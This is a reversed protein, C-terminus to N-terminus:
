GMWASSLAMASIRNSLPATPWNSTEHVNRPPMSRRSSTAPVSPVIQVFWKRRVPNSINEVPSSGAVDRLLRLRRAPPHEGDAVLDGLEAVDVHEGVHEVRHVLGHM